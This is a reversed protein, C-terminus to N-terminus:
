SIVCTLSTQVGPNDRQIYSFDAHSYLFYYRIYWFNYIPIRISLKLTFRKRQMSKPAALFLHTPPKHLLSVPPTPHDTRRFIEVGQSAEIRWAEPPPPKYGLSSHLWRACNERLRHAYDTSSGGEPYPRCSSTTTNNHTYIRTLHWSVVFFYAARSSVRMAVLVFRNRNHSKLATKARNGAYMKLACCRGKTDILPAFEGFTAQRNGNSSLRPLSQNAPQSVPYSPM